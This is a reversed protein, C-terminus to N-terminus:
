EPLIFYFNNGLPTAEYGVEGGHIEIVNKVFSLGHGTGPKFSQNTGRFGETFIKDREELIIHRGTSFVNYKIGNRGNGFYNKLIERGYAVYKRRVGDHDIVEETYKLANSFLNAYVQAILGVDVVSVIDEDPIGSFRDDIMIQMEKFDEIFRELQPQVVDRKMNCPMTRLTLRGQDFHSQRLLTELFLSTNSYHKEINEYEEKLGKNVYRLEDFLHEMCLGDCADNSAHKMLFREIEKNKDIKGKLRRIFLKFVMNPVIVNHEIDAVLTRIFKLHEVNKEFLFRNHLNFGIRNAYKQLFFELHDDLKHAPFIELFGLMGSRVRESIQDILLKNGKLGFLITGYDTYFSSEGVQIDEDISFIYEAPDGTTTAVLVMKDFKPDVIYIGADLNFFVKPVSVCLRYFDEISELEQALDFFTMLASGQTQSFNYKQYTTKKEEIRRIIEKMDFVKM